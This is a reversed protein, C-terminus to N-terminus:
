DGGSVIGFEVRGENAGEGSPTPSVQPPEETTLRTEPIGERDVLRERTAAVRRRSLEALGDAPAPERERLLALQEDVTAPLPVDPLYAKYYEARAAAADDLGHEKQFAGLRATVAENTLAEADARTPVPTLALNLFPSRRLFDAVRVLHDEMPPSLVASGAAFTVPDVKPEELKDGSSKDGGSFLRGIAKFPATVINVLVNKIATWITERLDFKPDNVTGAVPVTAHIDGHQDKILAVILGLPLGIRRKVEDGGSTPAM